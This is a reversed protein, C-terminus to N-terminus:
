YIFIKKPQQAFFPALITLEKGFHGDGVALDNIM